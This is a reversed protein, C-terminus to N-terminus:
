VDRAKRAEAARRNQFWNQVQRAEVGLHEALKLRVSRPPYREGEFISELLAKGPVWRSNHPAGRPTSQNIPLRFVTRGVVPTSRSKINRTAAAPEEGVARAYAVAAELATDFIGIYVSGVQTHRAVYRGNPHKAVGRFGTMSRSSLHLCLGEAEAAVRAYGAARAFAVAAESMEQEECMGCPLSCLEDLGALGKLVNHWRNQIACATRAPPPFPWQQAVKPLSIKDRVHRLLVYADMEPRWLSASHGNQPQPASTAHVAMLSRRLADPLPSMYDEQVVPDTTFPGGNMPSAPLQAPASTLVEADTPHRSRDLNLSQRLCLWLQVQQSTTGFLEALDGVTDEGPHPDLDLVRLLLWEDELTPRWGQTDPSRHQAATRQHPNAVDALAAANFHQIQRFTAM